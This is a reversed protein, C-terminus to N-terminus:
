YQNILIVFIITSVVIAVSGAALIIKTNRNFTFMNKSTGELLRAERLAALLPKYLYMAIASNMLAKALNFPLLLTPLMNMIYPDFLSLGFYFPAVFTNLLLMVGTTLVTAAALGIIAYNINRKRIYIISATLSFVATSLFNMLFGFWGTDGGFTLTEILSTALSMGLASVPGYIYAAITIIADKADFTLHAVRMWKTLLTVVIALAVFMAMGCLRKVNRSSLKLSKNDNSDPTKFQKEM